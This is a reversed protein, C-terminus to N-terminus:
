TFEELDCLEKSGWRQSLDIKKYSDCDRSTAGSWPVWLVVLVCDVVLTCFLLRLLVPSQSTCCTSFWQHQNYSAIAPFQPWPSSSESCRPFYFPASQATPLRGICSTFCPRFCGFLRIKNGLSTVWDWEINIFSNELIPGQVFLKQVIHPM